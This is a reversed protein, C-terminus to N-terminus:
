QSPFRFLLLRLDDNYWVKDESEAIHRLCSVSKLNFMKNATHENVKPQRGQEDAELVHYFFDYNLPDDPVSSWAREIHSRTQGLERSEKPLYPWHPNVLRDLVALVTKKYFSLFVSIKSSKGKRPRKIFIHRGQM